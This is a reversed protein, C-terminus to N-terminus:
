RLSFLLTYDGRLLLDTLSNIKYNISFTLFTCIIRMINFRMVLYTGGNAQSDERM